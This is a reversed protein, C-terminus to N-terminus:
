EGRADPGADEVGLRHIADGLHTAARQSFTEATGIYLGALRPILQAAHWYKGARVGEEVALRISDDVGDAVDLGM